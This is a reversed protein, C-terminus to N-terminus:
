GPMRTVLPEMGPVVIPVTPTDGLQALAKDIAQSVTPADVTVLLISTPCGWITCFAVSDEGLGKANGCAFYGIKGKRRMQELRELGNM